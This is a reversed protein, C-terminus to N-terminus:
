EEQRVFEIGIRKSNMDIWEDAEKAMEETFHERWGGVQGKRVHSVKENNKNEMPIKAVKKFNDFDIYHALTELQDDSIPTNIFESLEKIYSKQDQFNLSFKM